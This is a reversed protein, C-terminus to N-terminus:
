GSQGVGRDQSADCEEQLAQLKCTIRHLVKWMVMVVARVCYLLELIKDAFRAFEVVGRSRLMGINGQQELLEGGCVHLCGQCSGKCHMACLLLAWCIHILM